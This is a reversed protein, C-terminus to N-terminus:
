KGAKVVAGNDAQKKGYSVTHRATNGQVLIVTDGGNNLPMSNSKMTIVRRGIAFCRGCITRM